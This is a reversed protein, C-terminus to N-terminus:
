GLSLLHANGASVPSGPDPLLAPPCQQARAAPLLKYRERGNNKNQCHLRFTSSFTRLLPKHCATFNNGQVARQPSWPVPLWPPLSFDRRPPILPCSAPLSTCLTLVFHEKQRLSHQTVHWIGASTILCPDGGLRRCSRRATSM